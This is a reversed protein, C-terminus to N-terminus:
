IAYQLYVWSSIGLLMHQNICVSTLSASNAPDADMRSRTTPDGVDFNLANHFGRYYFCLRGLSLVGDVGGM